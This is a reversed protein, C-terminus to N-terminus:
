VGEVTVGHADGLFKGARGANPFTDELGAFGGRVVEFSPALGLGLQLQQALFEQPRGRGGHERGAVM